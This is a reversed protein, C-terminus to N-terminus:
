IQEYIVNGGLYVFDDTADQHQISDLLVGYQANVKAILDPQGELLKLHNARLTELIQLENRM